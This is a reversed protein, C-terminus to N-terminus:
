ISLKTEPEKEDSKPPACKRLKWISSSGENKDNQHGETDTIEWQSTGDSIKDGKKLDQFGPILHKQLELTDTDGLTQMNDSGSAQKTITPRETLIRNAEEQEYAIKEEIAAIKEIVEKSFNESLRARIDLGKSILTSVLSKKPLVVKSEKVAVPISVAKTTGADDLTTMLDLGEKSTTIEAVRATGYGMGHLMSILANVAENKIKEQSASVKQEELQISQALHDSSRGLPMDSKIAVVSESEVYEETDLDATLWSSTKPQTSAEKEETYDKNPGSYSGCESCGGRYEHEKGHCTSCEKKAIVPEKFEGNFAIKIHESAVRTLSDKVVTQLLESKNSSTAYENKGVIGLDAGEFAPHSVQLYKSGNDTLQFSELSAVVVEDAESASNLANTITSQVDQESEVNVDNENITMELGVQKLGTNAYCVIRGHFVFSSSTPGETSTLEVKPEGTFHVSGYKALLYSGAVREAQSILKNKAANFKDTM